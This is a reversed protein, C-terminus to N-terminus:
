PATRTRTRGTACPRRGPRSSASALSTQAPGGAARRPDHERSPAGRTETAVLEGRGISANRQQMVGHQSEALHAVLDDHHDGGILRLRRHRDSGGCPEDAVRAVPLARERPQRPAQLRGGVSSANTAPPSMGSREVATSSSISRTTPSADTSATANCSPSRNRGSGQRTRTAGARSAACASRWPPSRERRDSSFASRTATMSSGVHVARSGARRVSNSTSSRAVQTAPSRCTPPGVRQLLSRTSSRPPPAVRADCGREFPRFAMVRRTRMMPAAPRSKWLKLVTYRSSASVLHHREGRGLDREDVVPLVRRLEGTRVVRVADLDM